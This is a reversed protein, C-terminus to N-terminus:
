ELRVKTAGDPLSLGLKALNDLLDGLLSAELALWAATALGPYGSAGGALAFVGFVLLNPLVKRYLVEATKALVFEGSKLTAAVAVVFNIVIQTILLKAEPYAWILALYIALQDLVAQVEAM